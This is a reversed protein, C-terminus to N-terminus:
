SPLAYATVLTFGFQANGAASTYFGIGPNGAMKPPTTDHATMFSSRIGTSVPTWWATVDASGDTNYQVAAEFIDGTAPTFGISGPSNTGISILSPAKFRGINAYAGDHAINVEYGSVQTNGFGGGPDFSANRDYWALHLEVEIFTGTISGAKWVTGKIGHNRPFGILQACSDDFGGTSVMTGHALHVGSVVETRVSTLTPDNQTDWAGGESIPNETLPFATSYVSRIPIMVKSSVHHSDFRM